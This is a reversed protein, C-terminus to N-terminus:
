VQPLGLGAAIQRSVRVDPDEGPGFVHLRYPTEGRVLLALLLRSDLGGSLGLSLAAGADLAPHLLRELQGIPDPPAAPPRGPEWAAERVDVAGRACVASGGPGLRVVGEVLSRAAFQNSA